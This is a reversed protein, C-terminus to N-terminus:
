KILWNSKMDMIIAFERNWDATQEVLFILCDAFQCITKVNAGFLKLTIQGVSVRVVVQAHMWHGSAVGSQVFRLLMSGVATYQRRRGCPVSVLGGSPRRVAVVAVGTSGCGSTKTLLSVM